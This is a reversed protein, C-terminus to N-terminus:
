GDGSESKKRKKVREYAKLAYCSITVKLCIENMIRESEENTASRELRQLAERIQGECEEQEVLEYLRLHELFDETKAIFYRKQADLGFGRHNHRSGPL